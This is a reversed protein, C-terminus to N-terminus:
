KTRKAPKVEDVEICSPVRIYDEGFMQKIFEDNLMLDQVLDKCEQETDFSEADSTKYMLTPGHSQMLYIILIWKTM